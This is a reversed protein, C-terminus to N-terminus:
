YIVIHAGAAQALQMLTASNMYAHALHSINAVIPLHTIQRAKVIAEVDLRYPTNRELSLTGAEGLMLHHNGKLAIHEAAILWDDVQHHKDKCLVVPINLCGVENLLTRNPMLEGGLYIIDAEAQLAPELQRVDRIRLWVSKNAQHAQKIQQQMNISNHLPPTYPSASQYFPDIFINISEPLQSSTMTAVLQCQQGGFQQGRVTIITDQQQTERSIIRWDQLIRLAKEVGALAELERPEFVREDGVAGIITREEGHSIHEHLGRQRIFTIVNNIQAATAQRQMVIIM